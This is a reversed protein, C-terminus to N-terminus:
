SQKLVSPRRYFITNGVLGTRSPTQNIIFDDYTGRHSSIRVSYIGKKLFIKRKRAAQFDDFANKIDRLLDKM